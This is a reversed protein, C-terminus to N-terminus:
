IDPLRSVGLINAMLKIDQLTIKRALEVDSKLCEASALGLFTALENCSLGFARRFQRVLAIIKERCTSQKQNAM